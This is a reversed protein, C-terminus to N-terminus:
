KVNTVQPIQSPEPFGTSSLGVWSGRCVCVQLALARRVDWLFHTVSAPPLAQVTNEGAAPGPLRGAMRCFSQRLQLAELGRAM